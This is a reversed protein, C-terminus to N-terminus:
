KDSREKRGELLKRQYEKSIDMTSKLFDIYYTRLVEDEVRKSNKEIVEKERSSDFIPMNNEAKYEAVDKVAEMREVFLQAIKEDVENIKERAAKLKDEM